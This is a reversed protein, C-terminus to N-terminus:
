GGPAFACNIVPRRGPPSCTTRGGAAGPRRRAPSRRSRGSAGARSARSARPAACAARLVARGRRLQRRVAQAPRRASRRGGGDAAARDFFGGGADDWMPARCALALEEAMVRYVINGTADCADLCAAAMAFQDTSCAASRRPATTATPSAAARSTARAAARTRALPHRLESLSPENLARGAQLAASAMARELGHAADSRRRRRACDGLGGDEGRPIRCRRAAVRGLRRRGPRGALDARLAAVDAARDLTARSGSRSPPTSTSISCRPTSTSCSRATRNAGTPAGACRFFGGDVEDYLPGWGIADLTTIAIDRM